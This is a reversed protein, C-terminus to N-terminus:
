SHVYLLLNGTQLPRLLQLLLVPLKLKSMLTVVKMFVHYIFHHISLSISPHISSLHIFPHISSYISPYISQHIFLHISWSHIFQHHIFLNISWYIFQHISYHDCDVYLWCGRPAYIALSRLLRTTNFGFVKLATQKM